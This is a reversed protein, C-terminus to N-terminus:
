RSAILHTSGNGRVLGTKQTKKEKFKESIVSMLMLFISSLFSTKPLHLNSNLSEMVFIM